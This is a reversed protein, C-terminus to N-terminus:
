TLQLQMCAVALRMVQSLREDFTLARTILLAGRRKVRGSLTSTALGGSLQHVGEQGQGQADAHTHRAKRRKVRGTGRLTTRRASRRTIRLAGRRKVRGSPTSTALGGSLQHVGEQGQGQADAHTHRAKRRKVRGTGRLTTRRASRRTIRLAGRRKVRGSQTSIELGGSLQHVGEQGQGQADAHTHRAKRRKVRGTGRLTTRRASRRTIRLAGRRKVRGSPTSTELGGSLQHVGEQGQGQADAHTHRAKRRKVRGTGRLTTRRASRRTIRLAGRRKVRGSPTSTALGGSLQHVGEQGQGQADAHTHRAKRRKVRGTGRLTTRRASRRTIRLAGRRKVRGSPTSTALGGSLQHVGEQGQGQADAHTHRAKRRKVRGTGRLTTRRASRRTIRLAGRRKVRGSPTSTALGGSLQHVGEQGQGQADAHTHRAKRRKVRGTGRLTTRRASRRTIRLAGRRKVRGSQTSTELGGSLQHVGEQGQGQADAHTHRAKRRKVRGTGRLTTRRASRRTIRLAGRRKVRGSPTSTELGGSLQHVGEQGQGQADAHTHRAKRRKVRGTGRLTTRRASRRTIRLAGRRKVRGSQTSIELGGSLQHVGEQGQGQADAHTHRAKRRKVRGTGRLTTRRASRRTIRLAGRRKVRGSLTSTALGGSLQHVGEQGQGQADAHTHRAKRRKVRGTGRLTTRRASRRTIRLAGRRKVRGSPTSTALGGSLQHVGEQGQGQADAHTHRAKRRKVRGTGRLTTRRASRRTIRLAGRRKVRGSQTSIELGGSLQHVGEQGQGQADAHTHRAKRRKVRGTGRLTTRRASRRTIRLAGRRKVRGSPTSTALGGSLQHVGEQGQGQADAHTHRAKRRKVRGTGRLTTRRASRRTIRLAGRREKCMQM